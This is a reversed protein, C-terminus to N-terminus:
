PSAEARALARARDGARGLKAYIAALERYIDPAAGLSGAREYEMAAEGLRGSKALQRAQQVTKDIDFGRRQADFAAAQVRQYAKLQESAEDLQGLRRLTQGLVYRPQALNPDLAV